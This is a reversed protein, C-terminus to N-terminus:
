RRAQDHTDRRKARTRERLQLPVRRPDAPTVEYASTGADFEAYRASLRLEIMTACHCLAQRGRHASCHGIRGVRRGAMGRRRAGEEEDSEVAVFAPDAHVARTFQQVPPPVPLGDALRGEPLRERCGHEDGGAPIARRRQQIGHAPGTRDRDLSRQDRSPDCGADLSRERELAPRYVVLREPRVDARGGLGRLQRTRRRWDESGIPVLSSHHRRYGVGLPGADAPVDRNSAGGNGGSGVWM